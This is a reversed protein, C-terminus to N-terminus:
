GDNKLLADTLKEIDKNALRLRKEVYSVINTDYNMVMYIFSRLDGMDLIVGLDYRRNAFLIDLMQSSENDRAIIGNLLVDYYAPRVHMYGEYAMAELFMGTHDTEINTVPVCIFIGTYPNVTSYYEKQLEDFKPVVAIGFDAEMTRLPVINVMRIWMYLGQNSQFMSNMGVNFDGPLTMVNFCTNTDYLIEFMHQIKSIASESNLSVYPLGKEDKKAVSEGSAILMDHLTDRQYLLGYLDNSDMKGDANLDSSVAKIQEAMKDLTWSGDLIYGYPMEINYDRMLEKNFVFTSIAGKDMTTMYSNAGFNKSALSLDDVARADWWPKSFDIYGLKKLDIIMNNVVLTTLAQMRPIFIDYANDGAHISKNLENVADVYSDINREGIKCNFRTQVNVNRLYMADNVASGDQEEITIEDFTWIAEGPWNTTLFTFVKGEMDTEPLNLTYGTSEEPMTESTSVYGDSPAPNNSCAFLAAFTFFALILTWLRFKGM